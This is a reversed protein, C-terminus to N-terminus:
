GIRPGFPFFRGLNTFLCLDEYADLKDRENPKQRPAFILTGQHPARVAAQVASPTAGLLARFHDRVFPHSSWRPPDTRARFVLGLRELRALSRRLDSLSLGALSGAVRPAAKTLAHLASADAGASLVSLRALM